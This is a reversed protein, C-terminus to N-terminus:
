LPMMPGFPGMRAISNTTELLPPSPSPALESNQIKLKSNGARARDPNIYCTARAQARKRSARLSIEHREPGPTRTPPRPTRLAEDRPGRPPTLHHGSAPALNRRTTSRLLLGFARRATLGTLPSASRPTVEFAAVSRPIPTCRRNRSRAAPPGPTAILSPPSSPNAQHGDRRHRRIFRPM